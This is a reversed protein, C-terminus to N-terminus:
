SHEIRSLVDYIPISFALGTNANFSLSRSQDGKILEDPSFYSIAIGALSVKGPDHLDRAFVPGGSMGKNLIVDLLFVREFGGLSVVSSFMARKAFAPPYGANAKSLPSRWRAPYGMVLADQGIYIQGLQNIDLPEAKQLQNGIEFVIYDEHSELSAGRTLLTHSVKQWGSDTLVELKKANEYESFVHNASILFRSGAYDVVVGTGADAGCKVAYTRRFAVEPVM